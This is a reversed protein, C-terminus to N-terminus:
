PTPPTVSLLIEVPEDSANRYRHPQRSNLTIAEGAGVDYSALGVEVTLRGRLVYACEISPHGYPEDSSVDGPKLVARLVELQGNGPALREYGVRGRPASLTSREGPRSIWVPPTSPEDFLGAVSEGFVSALRRLTSLSPEVVGREVQSLLTPSLGTAAALARLSMGRSTRLEKLRGGIM